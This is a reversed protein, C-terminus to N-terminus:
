KKLWLALYEAYAVIDDNGEIQFEHATKILTGKDKNKVDLLTIINRLRYGSGITIPKIFRVRDLGYILSHETDEPRLNSVNIFNTILGILMLGHAITKQNTSDTHIPHTNGTLIGFQDTHNQDLEIWPSVALQKGIKNYFDQLRM